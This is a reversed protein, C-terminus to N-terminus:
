REQEQHRTNIKDDVMYKLREYFIPGSFITVEMQEGTMGNYLIREGM